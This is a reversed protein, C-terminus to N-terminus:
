AVPRYKDCISLLRRKIATSAYGAPSSTEILTLTRDMDLINELLIHMQLAQGLRQLDVIYRFVHYVSM